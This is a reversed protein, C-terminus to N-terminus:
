QDQQPHQVQWVRQVSSASSLSFSAATLTYGIWEFCLRKESSLSLCIMWGGGIKKTYRKKVKKITRSEFDILYFREKGHRGSGKGVRVIAFKVLKSPTNICVSGGSVVASDDRWMPEFSVMGEYLVLAPMIACIKNGNLWVENNERSNM